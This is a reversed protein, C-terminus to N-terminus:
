KRGLFRIRATFARGSFLGFSLFGPSDVNNDVAAPNRRGTIDEFGFRLAWTRGVAGFRKELFLNLSFYDPFRHSNAPGVM